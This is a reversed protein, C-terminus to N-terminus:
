KSRLKWSDRKQQPKMRNALQGGKVERNAIQIMEKQVEKSPVLNPYLTCALRTQKPLDFWKGEPKLKWQNTM